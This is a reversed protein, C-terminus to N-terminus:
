SNFYKSFFSGDNNAAKGGLIKGLFGKKQKSEEPKAFMKVVWDNYTMNNEELFGVLYKVSAAMGVEKEIALLDKYLKEIEPLIHKPVAKRSAQIAIINGTEPNVDVKFDTMVWYYSGDKSLNKVVAHMNQKAKISQWLMEFVVKPMDPHRIINHPKGMLETLSYGSIEIFYDSAYVIIGKNDTKSVITKAPDLIIEKNTPTPRQIAM